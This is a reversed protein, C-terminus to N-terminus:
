VEQTISDFTKTQHTKRDDYYHRAGDANDNIDNDHNVSWLVQWRNFHLSTFLSAKVGAIQNTGGKKKNRGQDEEKISIHLDIRIEM